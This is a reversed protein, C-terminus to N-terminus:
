QNRTIRGGEPRSFSSQRSFCWGIIDRVPRRSNAFEMARSLVPNDRGGVMSDPVALRYVRGPSLPGNDSEARELAGGKLYLRLGSVSIEGPQLGALAQELDDGRIKVFVMSSDRPFAAYLAGLTVTGSSFGAAPESVGIIAANSKAWRRMCDAAFDGVPSTGNEALPLPDNLFGLRKLFHAAAGARYEGTLQLVAKDEGYKKTYLPLREWDLDTMRGTAPDLTLTLRAAEAMGLGARAVWTRNVRYPRGVSPEDTIVLDIKPVRSLFDRFFDKGASEGPKVSLLMVTVEAGADNLAKLSRETEYTEKELRYKPLNRARNPKGPSAIIVSFFGIKRGGARVLSSSQMFGPKKGNRLYLNSALLPMSSSEALKQLDAPSLALDEMGAAAASYPVANMCAIASRGKTIWGEPTPSFWNGADVALKPRKESDYLKKFVAFGGAMQNSLSPVPRAELRGESRATAFIVIQEKQACAGAGLLLAALILTGAKTGPDM